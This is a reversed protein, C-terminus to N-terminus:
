LTVDGKKPYFSALFSQFETFKIERCEDEKSLKLAKSTPKDLTTLQGKKLGLQSFKNNLASMVKPRSLCTGPALGLFSILIEPVPQEKNFGGNVNGKRKPREKRVKNVEDTHSKTLLKLVSNCQREFENYEREKLKVQQKLENITKQTNKMNVRTTELKNILETFTEKKKDKVVQEESIQSEVDDVEDDGEDGEDGEDLEEESEDSDVVDVIKPVPETVKTKKTQETTKVATKTM